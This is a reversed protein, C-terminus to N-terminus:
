DYSQFVSPIFEAAGGGGRGRHITTKREIIMTPFSSINTISQFTVQNASQLKSSTSINYDPDFRSQNMM